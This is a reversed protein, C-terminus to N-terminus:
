HPEDPSDRALLRALRERLIARARNLIARQQEASIGLEASVQAPDRDEVDRREVVEKWTEPLEALADRLRQRMAPDAPDVPRWPDPFEQWHRHYPDDPGRFRDDDVAPKTPLWLCWRAFRNRREEGRLATNAVARSLWGKM